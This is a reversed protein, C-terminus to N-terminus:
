FGMVRQREIKMITRNIYESNAAFSKLSDASLVPSENEANSYYNYVIDSCLLRITHMGDFHKNERLKDVSGRLLERGSEDVTLGYDALWSAIRDLIVDTQPLHLAVIEIRLYMSILAELERTKANPGQSITLVNLWEQSNSAMYEMFDLFYKEEHHGVWENINIRVIGRFGSRFGAADRIEEILRYLETFPEEPPCYNLMFEMFKVDGFFDMLNKKSELYDAMLRLLTTNGYGPRTYMLLDPLLIPAGVNRTSLNDSLTEWKRILAHLEEAGSLAMIADYEKSM